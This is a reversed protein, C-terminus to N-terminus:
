PRVLRLAQKPTHLPRVCAPPRIVLTGDGKSPLGTMALALGLSVCMFALTILGALGGRGVECARRGNAFRVSARGAGRRVSM